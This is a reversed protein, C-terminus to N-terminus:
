VGQKRLYETIEDGINRMKWAELMYVDALAPNRHQAESESMLIKFRRDVYEAVLASVLKTEMM